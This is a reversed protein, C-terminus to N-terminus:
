VSENNKISESFDSTLVMFVLILNFALDYSVLCSVFAINILLCILPFFAASNKKVKDKKCFSLFLVVFFLISGFLGYYYILDIYTSHAAAKMLHPAGIGSGFIFKDFNLSLYEIYGSWLTTRNTTVDGSDESAILREIVNDFISIRGSFVFVAAVTLLLLYILSEFYKKNKLLLVVFCISIFAILLIFSKSVTQAGFFVFILYYVYVGKGVVNNVYLVLILSIALIIALTYYNPDSYLGVFREVNEELDFTKEKNLYNSMNPIFREFQAVFSSLVLGNTYNLVVRKIDPKEILFFFAFIPLLLAQKILNKLDFNSGLTIYVLFLLWATLFKINFKEISFLLKLFALLIVYTFFSTSSVSMKFINAFSILFFLSLYVNQPKSFLIYLAYIVFALVSFVPIVVGLVILFAIAVYFLTHNQLVGKKRESEHKEVLYM